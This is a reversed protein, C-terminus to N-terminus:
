YHSGVVVAELVPRVRDIGLRLDEFAVRAENWSEAGGKAELTVAALGVAPLGFTGAVGRVTHALRKISPADSRGIAGEIESLLRPCDDLFLGVVEGLLAEDGGVTILAAERDFEAISDPAPGDPEIVRSEVGRLTWKEIAERLEKSRIPKTLYDDFGSNLCRERDGKMAHATLAVIPVHGGSLGERGRIAAVAEFGDMEPMQVDMLILDFSAVSWAEVAKAGDAVVSVKYGLGELMCVAVKQNVVHDEALLIRLPRGPGAPGAAVEVPIVRSEVLSSTSAPKELVKMLLDFLESQRVPKTLYGSIGRSLARESEGSLGSSTLMIMLPQSSVGMARIREALEFGDMGPMMGDILAMSFPRGAAEARRLAELASPGDCATSPNASWNTLVEELIRRNTRNDDVVLVRLGTIPSPGDSGSHRPSEVGLGFRATFHFTSGVGVAGEVWIRGEMMAVLKGSIALGLGTGGYHRTTSGDAQEFPEFISERKEAPIGIGTDAVSFRLVAWDESLLDIEVTVVVEGSGTFKIANGVLNVVVQRLRGPDGFLADPVEPAIRCALELNKAHARRALTKMTDELSDRLGFDVRDLSLKGAEIKSFDLIDNIVSLLSDASSKVQEIYERQRDSLPTELALETMGLIGNMPTRIEHSMNALFESKARNASEAAERANRVESIDLCCGILGGFEGGNFARPVGKGLIWRYEGDARRLRYEIQYERRAESATDSIALLRDLDDPHVHGTWGQGLQREITEGTFDLWGKSFWTRRGDPDGLWIMVPAGDALTRFRAESERLALEGRWREVFQGIQVGLAGMVRLLADDTPQSDLALLVVVGIVVSNAIIPFGFAHRLGVAGALSVRVFHADAPLDDIWAPRAHAWIRGPLGDGPGFTIALSPIAFEAEVRPSSTWFEALHLVNSSPQWTWFEAVDVGLNEGIARLLEPIAEDLSSARALVNTAAYQVALRGESRRRDTIDSMIGIIRAVKGSEDFIPQAEVEALFRRGSKGHFLMEVRCNRGSWVGERVFELTAPDTEPGLFFPGAERGIVEDSGYGTVRTFGENVWDIKKKSDIIVVANHTRSAVMALKKAEAESASLASEARGRRGTERVILRHVLLLIVLNIGMGIAIVLIMRRRSAQAKRLRHDLLSQEEASMTDVVAQIEDKLSRSPEGETMALVADFGRERRVQVIQRQLDVQRAVIQRLREVRAQQVPNDSTQGKISRLEQEILPLTRDFHELDRADGLTVFGLLRSEAERHLSLNRELMRLVIHTHEVWAVDESSEKVSRLAFYGLGISIAVVLAFWFAVARQLSHTM